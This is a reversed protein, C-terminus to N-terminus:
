RLERTLYRLHGQLTSTLSLLIYLAVLKRVVYVLQHQHLEVAPYEV